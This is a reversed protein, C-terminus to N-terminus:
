APGAGRYGGPAAGSNLTIAQRIAVGCDTKWSAFLRRRCNGRFRNAPM